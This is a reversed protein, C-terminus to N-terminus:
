PEPSRVIQTPSSSLGQRESRKSKKNKLSEKLRYSEWTFNCIHARHTVRDLLAATLTAEGFVQTWDAFGLNTTIIVSGREHREALVQFLLEAGQKTFPVYGLEDVILLSYKAYRQILRSLSRAGQAEMLENVIGCGNVFRTSIGQRCASVGLATALHTKGTGSKGLFIVNRKERIYDGQDLDRLLTRDLAPAAEYDFTELTKLLPFRAERIMRRLRNEARLQLEVETLSLLFDEHAMGSEKAQRLLADLHGQMHPLKLAKLNERLVM